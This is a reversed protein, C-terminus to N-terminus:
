GSLLKKTFDMNFKSGKDLLIKAVDASVVGKEEDLLKSIM